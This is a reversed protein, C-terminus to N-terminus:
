FLFFHSLLYIISNIIWIGLVHPCDLLFVGEWHISGARCAWSSLFTIPSYFYHEVLLKRISFICHGFSFETTSIHYFCAYYYIIM